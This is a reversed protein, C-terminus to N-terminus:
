RGITDSKHMTMRRSRTQCVMMRVGVVLIRREVGTIKAHIVPSWAMLITALRDLTGVLLYELGRAVAKSGVATQEAEGPGEAILIITQTPPNFYPVSM